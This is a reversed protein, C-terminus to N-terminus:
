WPAGNKGAQGYGDTLQPKSAVNADGGRSPRTLQDFLMGGIKARRGSPEGLPQATLSRELPMDHGFGRWTSRALM